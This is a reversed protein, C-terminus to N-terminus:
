LSDERIVEVKQEKVECENKLIHVFMLLASLLLCVEFLSRAIATNGIPRMMTGGMKLAHEVARVENKTNVLETRYTELETQLRTKTASWEEVTRTKESTVQTLRSEYQAVKTTLEAIRTNLFTIQETTRQTEMAFHQLEFTDKSSTTQQQQMTVAYSSEAEMHIEDLRTMYDEHLARFAETFESRWIARNEATTDRYALTTMETMKQPLFPSFTMSTKLRFALKKHASDASIPHFGLFSTLILQFLRCSVFPTKLNRCKLAKSSIFEFAFIVATYHKIM